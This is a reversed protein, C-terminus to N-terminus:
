TPRPVRPRESVWERCEDLFNSNSMIRDAALEVFADSYRPALDHKGQRLLDPRTNPHIDLAKRLCQIDYANIERGIKVRKALEAVVEKQIYPHLSDPDIMGYVPAGPDTTIQVQERAAGSGVGRKILAMETEDSASILRRIDRLWGKRIRELEREIFARIDEREAPESKAGHRFYVTGQSFARGQAGDGSPYTGPKAFVYPCGVAASILIAAVIEGDREVEQVDFGSFDVKTYKGVLNALKSPDLNLIATLDTGSLSGNDAVGIVVVGGGSNAIAVFDKVLEVSTRKDSPDFEAKFELNASERKGTRARDIFRDTAM